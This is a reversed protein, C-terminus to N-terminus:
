TSSLPLWRAILRGRHFGHYLPQANRAQDTDTIGLLEWHFWQALQLPRSRCPLPKNQHSILSLNTSHDGHDTVVMTGPTAPPALLGSSSVWALLITHRFLVLAVSIRAKDPSVFPRSCPPSALNKAQTIMPPTALHFRHSTPIAANLSWPRGRAHIENGSEAGGPWRDGGRKAADADGVWRGDGNHAPKPPCLARLTAHANLRDSAIRGPTLKVQAGRWLSPALDRPRDTVDM